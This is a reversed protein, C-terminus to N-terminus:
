STATPYTNFLMNLEAQYAAEHSVKVFDTLTSHLTRAYPLPLSGVAGYFLAVPPDVKGDVFRASGSQM